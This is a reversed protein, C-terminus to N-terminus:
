VIVSANKSFFQKWLLKQSIKITTELEPHFLGCIQTSNHYQYSMRAVRLISYIPTYTLVLSCPQVTASIHGFIQSVKGAENAHQCPPLCDTINQINEDKVPQQIQVELLVSLVGDDFENYLEFTEICSFFESLYHSISQLRNRTFAQEMALSPKLVIRSAVTHNMLLPLQSKQKANVTMFNQQIKILKASQYSVTATSCDVYKVCMQDKYTNECIECLTIRKVYM